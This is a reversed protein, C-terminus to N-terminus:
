AVIQYNPFIHTAGSRPPGITYRSDGALRQGLAQREEGPYSIM